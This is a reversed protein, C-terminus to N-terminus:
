APLVKDKGSIDKLPGTCKEVSVKYPQNDISFWIQSGGMAEDNTSQIVSPLLSAVAAHVADTVPLGTLERKSM